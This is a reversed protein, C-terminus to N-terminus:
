GNEQSDIWDIYEGFTKHKPQKLFEEFRELVGPDQIGARCVAEDGEFFYEFIPTYCKRCGVYGDCGKDSAGCCLTFQKSGGDEFPVEYIATVETLNNTSM